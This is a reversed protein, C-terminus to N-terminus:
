FWFDVGVSGALGVRVDKAAVSSEKLLKNEPLVDHAGTPEFNLIGVKVLELVGGVALKLNQGIV